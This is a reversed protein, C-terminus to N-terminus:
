SHIGVLLGDVVEDAFRLTDWHALLSPYAPDYFELKRFAERDGSLCRRIWLLDDVAKTM